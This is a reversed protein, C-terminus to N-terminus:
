FKVNVGFTLVLPNPYGFSPIEPDLGTFDRSKYLLALNDANLYLRLSRVAVNGWKIKTNANYGLQLNRIKLYSGDEVFYTSFRGEDNINTLALSPIESGSNEPSWADLLRTLKNSGTNSVSWFDSHYKIENHVDWGKVGQFFISLDLQKYKVQTTLGYTFDPLPTGIWTRDFDNIINDGNLDKYRIRGIGKGIQQGHMDVEEQTKFLGDTVYGYFTGLTRGLINQGVRADGGFNNVVEEPLHTVRNRFVDLNGNFSLTLDNNVDIRSGLAMEFGKNLLSAGNVWRGGSEGGVALYGPKLLIDKSRKIYYDVSGFLISNKLSFDLGFNSQTTTEWRLNPNGTQTMLFGSPLQGTEIGRIDYSTAPYDASYINFIGHNDIEQNGNVGWSYRLKLNDFLDTKQIFSEQGIQWGLAFAPFTGFRNNEGFRSSGDRRITFSALYRGDYNYGIKGFYSLLAYKSGIGNNDKVGTGSNLYMYEENSVVYGDRYAGFTTYNSKFVETGGFIDVNHKSDFSRTYNISNTWTTKLDHWQNMYVRAMPDQLYGSKYPKQMNRAYDQSYDLGFNTKINLGKLLNIQAYFNGLMRMQLGHNQKNDQILRVPNQRDNMGGWPGGWGIGDVTRVPIMPLAQIAENIPAGGVEDLHVVNFNEGVQIINNLLRYDSNLRISIRKFGTEKIIGENNFYGVSFLSSGAESGKSVSLDYNQIVGTRAIENFWNTNSTRMTKEQDLYQPTNINILRPHGTVPDNTYDFRFPLSTSNPDVGSNVYAQWLAKGYQWTDMMKLKTLYNSVSVYSNLNVETANRRGKKTTIVIVGNSARSGYISAASADKLVQMSEIDETNLMHLNTKTPVGDIIFLPDNNNLTGIGRIRINAIGRQHGDTTIYVGPVQGQLGKMSNAVAMNNMQDVDVVSVAGIIDKKKETQYGTVVIEDLDVKDESLQVVFNGSKPIAIRSAIMGVHSIELMEDPKATIAFNGSSDSLISQESSKITVGAM